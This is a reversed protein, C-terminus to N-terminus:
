EGDAQMRNVQGRDIVLQPDCIPDSIPEFVVMDIILENGGTMGDENAVKM